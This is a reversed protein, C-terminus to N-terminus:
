LYLLIYISSSLVNKKRKIFFCLLFLSCFLSLLSSLFSCLPTSLLVFHLLFSYFPISLLLFSFLSTSFLLFSHFPNTCLYYFIKKSSYNESMDLPKSFLWFKDPRNWELWKQTRLYLFTLAGQYLTLVRVKNEKRGRNKKILSFFQGRDRLIYVVSPVLIM